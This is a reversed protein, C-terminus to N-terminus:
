APRESAVELARELAAVISLWAIKPSSLRVKVLAPCAIDALSCGPSWLFQSM